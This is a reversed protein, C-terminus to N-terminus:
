SKLLRKQQELSFFKSKKGIGFYSNTLNEAGDQYDM